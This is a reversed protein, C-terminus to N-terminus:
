ELNVFGTQRLAEFLVIAVANSLNLSRSHTSHSMPIRLCQHINDQILAAPLGQTEKGFVLMDGSQYQFQTYIKSGKTTAFFRRQQAYAEVLDDYTDWVKIQVLDLYDLGARRLHRDELSFGLPRVLHLQSDTAACTRIINGTNHPIEPELLVIHFM